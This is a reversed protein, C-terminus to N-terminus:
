LAPSQESVRTSHLDGLKARIENVDPHNLQTLITFAHQWVDGAAAPNGAARHSDGLHALVDAEFYRDGVARYL